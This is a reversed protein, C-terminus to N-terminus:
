PGIPYPLSFPPQCILEGRRQGKEASHYEHPISKGKLVEPSLGHLLGVYRSLSKGREKMGRHLVAVDCQHIVDPQWM